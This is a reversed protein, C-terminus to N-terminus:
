HHFTNISTGPNAIEIHTEVGTSAATMMATTLAQSTVTAAASCTFVLLLGSIFCGYKAKWEMANTELHSHTCIQVFLRVRHRVSIDDKLTQNFLQILEFAILMRAILFFCHFIIQKRILILLIKKTLSQFIKITKLLIEYHNISTRFLRIHLSFFFNNEIYVLAHLSKWLMNWNLPSFASVAVGCMFHTSVKTIMDCRFMEITINACFWSTVPKWRQCHLSQNM